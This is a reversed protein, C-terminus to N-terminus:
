LLFLISNSKLDKTVKIGINISTKGSVCHMVKVKNWCRIETGKKITNLIYDRNLTYVTANSKIKKPFDKPIYMDMNLTTTEEVKTEEIDVIEVSNIQVIDERRGLSLYERPNCFANYIEEIKEEDDPCIYLVLNADVLLETTSIGRMMGYSKNEKNSELKVNHRGDEYSAAAFEYRTYLDNVKSHYKGQIAVEMQIYERYDCAFHVMGIVTSPPPLPYTEKLQFSTPKKYNVLNQYIELKVAKKM